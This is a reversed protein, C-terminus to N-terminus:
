SLLSLQESQAVVSAGGAWGPSTPREQGDPPVEASGPRHTPPPYGRKRLWTDLAEAVVDGHQIGHDANFRRVRRQLDLADPVSYNLQSRTTYRSNIIRVTDPHPALPDDDGLPQADLTAAIDRLLRAHHSLDPM